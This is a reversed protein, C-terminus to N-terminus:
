HSYVNNKERWDWENPYAIFGDSEFCIKIYFPVAFHFSSPSLNTNELLHSDFIQPPTLSTRDLFVRSRWRQFTSFGSWGCSEACRAHSAASKQHCWRSRHTALKTTSITRILFGSNARFGKEHYCLYNPFVFISSFTWQCRTFVCNRDSCSYWFM